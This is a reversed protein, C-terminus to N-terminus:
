PETPRAAAVVHSATEQLESTPTTAREPLSSPAACSTSGRTAAIRGIRMRQGADPLRRHTTRTAHRDASQASAYRLLQEIAPFSPRTTCFSCRTPRAGAPLRTPVGRCADAARTAVGSRRRSPGGHRRCACVPRCRPYLLVGHSGREERPRRQPHDSLHFLADANPSRAPTSIASRASLRPTPFQPPCWRVSFRGSPGFRM